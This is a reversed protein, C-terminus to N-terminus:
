IHRHLLFSCRQRFVVGSQKNELESPENDPRFRNIEYLLQFDSRVRLVDCGFSKGVTTFSKSGQALKVKTLQEKNSVYSCIQSYLFIQPKLKIQPTQSKSIRLIFIKKDLKHDTHDLSM